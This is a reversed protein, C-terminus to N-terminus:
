RRAQQEGLLKQFRPNGRLHDFNPTDRVTSASYGAALAKELWDLAQDVEGFQNHVFAAKFLLGPAGPALALAQQLHAFAPERQKLMAHYHALRGLLAADRPNLRLEERALSIAKQYAGAAMVRRGPAWYYADGLNGWYLSYSQEINAADEFPRVAEAFRRLQFYTTGLNTYVSATPRIAISREFMAIAEAYRGQLVYTAGLNTYGRVSDPALAMVQAFMGEAEPYRAQRHYFGGLWNYGAWYHRRLEIARWYTREAEALKGLREYATALGRCADDSTPEIELARQFEVTAREYEGQGNHLTGLCSHAAALKADLTVARDCARRAFEVWYTEKSTEYKKLYAEGLGAHALAYNPDLGLARGFVSIAGEINEPKDYNQLYGRGELYHTYAGAVQTGYTALAQRERPQLELELMRVIGTVVQDRIAFPDSSGATITDARLEQRTLADMLVYTVRVTKESEHLTGTLVLNAGLENRAEEVSDVRRARVEGAPAVQLGPATTLQTLSATVTETLGAAYFQNAAGGGIAQFPLVVLNKKEPIQSLGLWRLPQRGVFIASAVALLLVAMATILGWRQRLTWRPRPPPQLGPPAEGRQLAGLDALLDRATAYRETPDKVLMKTVIRVLETPVKPNLEGLPAPEEHLIRDSTAMFGGALFPHKGSLMEYFVVGLSFIDAREVSEKELLVEPAMYAPTGSFGTTKTDASGTVTSQDPRPLRKAVGFDLVKVHGKPTLMINEPKIDCHVVGKEQAAALAEACQVAVELFEQIHVPGPLRHRLTTGEVFEMVLFIEGSEELVDYVAAIHQNNLSSAREAEKLFRRRYHEDARLHAAMRKLAVPRKLKSDDARYVEGMGGVGLRARIAFRGVTTGTLDQAAQTSDSQQPQPAAM